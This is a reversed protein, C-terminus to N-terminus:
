GLVLGLLAGTAVTTVALIITPLAFSHDILKTGLKTSGTEDFNAAAIQSGNTPLLYIGAFAGAWMGTLLGPAVGAALGIPVITRTATSQSTTLVCVVFVGLAFIWPADEVLGGISDVIESTHASIFTDTMWALGFLAIASVM